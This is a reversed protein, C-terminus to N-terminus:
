NSLLYVIDVNQITVLLNYLANLRTFNYLRNCWYLFWNIVGQDHTCVSLTYKAIVFIAFYM